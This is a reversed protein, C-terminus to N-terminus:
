EYKVEREEETDKSSTLNRYFTVVYGMLELALLRGEETLAKTRKHNTGAALKKLAETHIEIVDRPGAKALGLKSALRQLKSNKDPKEKYIKAELGKQLLDIYSERLSNFLHPERERLTHQAYMRSTISTSNQKTFREFQKLENQFQKIREIERQERETIDIGTSIISEIRGYDDHIVTNTWTILRQHGAKTIWHNQHSSPYNGIKLKQFVRRVEPLEHSPIYQEFRPNKQLEENTYGSIQKCTKNARVINGSTDMILIIAGSTELIAQVFRQEKMLAEHTQSHHKLNLIWNELEAADRRNGLLEDPGIFYFNEYIEEGIIAMPHTRLIDLLVTPEFRQKAYQCIASCKNNPLFQNLKAEYEILRESGPSGHLAWTMEGTVRLAKYGENLATKTESKLMEIMADPDFSGGKTYTDHRTLISLQGSNQYYEVDIGLEKLYELVTNATHVDVIYMIKENSKLGQGVFLSVVTKHEKETQYICCLHDGPQLRAIKQHISFGM